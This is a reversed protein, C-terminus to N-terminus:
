ATYRFVQVTGNGGYVWMNRQVFDSVWQKGTFFCIHGHQGHAMVGVDGPRAATNTFKTQEERTSLTAIHRFGKSPLFSAYQYASVPHGAMNIGGAELMVRVFSACRAISKPLVIQAAKRIAAAIDFNGVPPVYAGTLLGANGGGFGPSAPTIGEPVVNENRNKLFEFISENTYSQQEADKDVKIQQITCAKIENKTKDIINM